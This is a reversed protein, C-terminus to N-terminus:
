SAGGPQYQHQVLPFVGPYPRAAPAQRDIERAAQWTTLVQDFSQRAMFPKEGTGATWILTVRLETERPGTVSGVSLGVISTSEVAIPDGDSDDFSLIM